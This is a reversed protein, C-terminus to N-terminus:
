RDAIAGAAQLAKWSRTSCSEATLNAIPLWQIGQSGVEPDTACVAPDGQVTCKYIINLSHLFKGQWNLFFKEVVTLFGEIQFCSIGTEEKIERELAQVIPEGPQMGGGPLDWRDPEPGNIKHIMLVCNSKVFLGLVSIRLRIDETM